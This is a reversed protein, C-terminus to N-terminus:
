VVDDEHCQFTGESATTASQNVVQEVDGQDVEEAVEPRTNRDVGLVHGLVKLVIAAKNRSISWTRVSLLVQILHHDSNSIDTSSEERQDCDDGSDDSRPHVDRRHDGAKITPRPQQDYHRDGQIKDLLDVTM